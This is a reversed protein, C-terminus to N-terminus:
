SISRMALSAPWRWRCASGSRSAQLGRAADSPRTRAAPIGGHAGLALRLGFEATRQQVSYAMAAYVGVSALVMAALAFAGILWLHFRDGRFAGDVRQPMTTVRSFRFIATWPSSRGGCRTSVTTAVPVATKVVLQVPSVPQQAFPVYLNNFEVENILVDKINSVVGVIQLSALRLWATRSGPLLGIEQGVPSQGAFFKPALSENVIVVRPSGDVDQPRSTAGRWRAFRSRTSSAQASARAVARHESGAAPFPRGGIAFLASPDARCLFARRSQRQPSAPSATTQELLELSFDLIARPESYRPGSLAVGITFRDAPDFGLPVRTLQHLQEPLPRRRLGPRFHDHSRGRRARPACTAAPAVRGRVRGGSALAHEPRRADSISARPRLGDDDPLVAAFAFAAARADVQIHGGRVLYDAPVSASVIDVAWMALLIGAATGPIALLAGEVLLQRM